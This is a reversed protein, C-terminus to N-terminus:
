ERERRSTYNIKMTGGSFTVGFGDMVRKDTIPTSKDRELGVDLPEGEEDIAGDFANAAAQNIGKVIDAINSM